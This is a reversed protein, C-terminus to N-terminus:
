DPKSTYDSPVRMLYVGRAPFLRYNTLNISNTQSAPGLRETRSPYSVQLRSNHSVVFGGVCLLGSLFCGRLAKNRGKGIFEELLEGALHHPNNLAHRSRSTLRRSARFPCPFYKAM